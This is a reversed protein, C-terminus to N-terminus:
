AYIGENCLCDHFILLDNCVPYLYDPIEEVKKEKSEELLFNQADSHYLCISVHKNPLMCRYQKILEEVGELSLHPHFM